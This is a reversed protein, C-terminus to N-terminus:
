RVSSEKQEMGSWIMRERRMCGCIDWVVLSGDEDKCHMCAHVGLESLRVGLELLREHEVAHEYGQLLVSRCCWEGEVFINGENSGDLEIESDREIIRSRAKVVSTLSHNSTTVFRGFM